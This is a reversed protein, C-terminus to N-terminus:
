RVLHDEPTTKFADYFKFSPTRGRIPICETVNDQQATLLCYESLALSMGQCVKSGAHQSGSELFRESPQLVMTETM